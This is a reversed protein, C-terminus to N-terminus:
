GKKQDFPRGGGGDPYWGMRETYEDLRESITGKVVENLASDLTPIEASEPAEHMLKWQARLGEAANVLDETTLSVANLDGDSRVLAYRIARDAAERVFAPLYGDNAAAVATWDINEGFVREPLAAQILRIIGEADPSGIEIVADLRGPRLMGQTIREAYNTTLIALIKADKATVGDFLDLLATVSDRDGLQEVKDLDEFFVVAREYQRATKFVDELNQDHRAYVFTWGNETAEQAVLMATSTKGTGFKGSLLVARKGTIGVEELREPFRIPALINAEIQVATEAAYVVQEKKVAYPDLFQPIESGDFAKGRYLSNTELENEILNFLGEIHNKWKKPGTARLIFVSGLEQDYGAEFNFETDTIYPVEVAGWPIQETQGNPGSPIDHMEPKTRYPGFFGQRMGGKNIVGGFAKKIANNAARAGDWPKYNFKRLFVTEAEEEEMRDELFDIVEQYDMTEPLIIKKGEFTVLDEGGNLRGGLRALAALAEEAAAKFESREKKTETAGTDLKSM